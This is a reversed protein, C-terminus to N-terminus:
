QARRQRVRRLVYGVGGALLLSAGGDIPAGAVPQPSPGGSPQAHGTLAVFLLTAPLLSRLMAIFLLILIPSSHSSRAPRSGWLKPYGGTPPKNM